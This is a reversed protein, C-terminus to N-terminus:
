IPQVKALPMFRLRTRGIHNSVISAHGIIAEDVKCVGVASQRMPAEANPFCVAEGVDIDEALCADPLGGEKFAQGQLVEAFARPNPSISGCPSRASRKAAAARWPSAPETM